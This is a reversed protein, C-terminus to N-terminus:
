NVSLGPQEKRLQDALLQAEKARSEPQYYLTVVKVFCELAAPKDGKKLLARGRTFQLDSLIAMTKPNPVADPQIIKEVDQLMKLAEDAKDRLILANAKGIMGKLGYQSAPYAEIIRDCFQESDYTKGSKAMADAIAGAGEAVWAVDVGLYKEILPKLTEVGKAYDQHNIADMGASFDPRLALEVRSINGKPYPVVGQAEKMLLNGSKDISQIEGEVPAGQKLIIKDQAQLAPSGLLSGTIILSFCLRSFAASRIQAM